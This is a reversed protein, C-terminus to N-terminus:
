KRTKTCHECLNRHALVWKQVTMQPFFEELLDWLISPFITAFNHSFLFCRVNCSADFVYLWTQTRLLNHSMVQRSQNTGNRDERMAVCSQSKKRGVGWVLALHWHYKHASNCNGLATQIYIWIFFDLGFYYFDQLLRFSIVRTIEIVRRELVMWTRAFKNKNGMVGSNVYWKTSTGCLGPEECFLMLWCKGYLRQTVLLIFVM